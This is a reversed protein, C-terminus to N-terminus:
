VRTARMTATHADIRRTRTQRIWLEAAGFTLGLGLWFSAGIIEFPRAGTVFFLILGFVRITAIGLGISFMRIMWERHRAVDGRRIAVFASIVSVCFLTGFLFIAASAFSGGYPFLVGFLLGTLGLPITALLVIRGTLRHLRLQRMRFRSSFQFPALTLFIAGPVIHLLTLLPYGAFWRDYEYVEQQANTGALLPRIQDYLLGVRVLSVGRGIAATLGVVALFVVGCWLLPRLVREMNISGHRQKIM